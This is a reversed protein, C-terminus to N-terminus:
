PVAIGEIALLEQRAKSGSQPALINVIAAWAESASRVPTAIIRRAIVTM